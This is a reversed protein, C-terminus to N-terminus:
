SLGTRIQRIFKGFKAFLRSSGTTSSPRAQYFPRQLPELRRKIGTDRRSPLYIRDGHLYKRLRLPLAGVREPPFIASLRPNMSTSSRKAPRANTALELM